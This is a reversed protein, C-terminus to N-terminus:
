DIDDPALAQRRDPDAQIKEVLRRIEAFQKPTLGGDIEIVVDCVHEIALGLENDQLHDLVLKRDSEPLRGGLVDVITRIEEEVETWFAVKEEWTLDSFPKDSKM